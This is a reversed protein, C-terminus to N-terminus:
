GATRPGPVHYSYWTLLKGTTADIAFLGQDARPGHPSPMSVGEYALLWVLTGDIKYDELVALSESATADPSWARASRLWDEATAEADAAPVVPAPSAPNLKVKLQLYTIVDQPVPGPSEAPVASAVTTGTATGTRDGDGGDSSTCSVLSFLAIVGLLTALRRM